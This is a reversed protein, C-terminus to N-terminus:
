PKFQAPKRLALNDAADVLTRGALWGIVLILGLGQALRM